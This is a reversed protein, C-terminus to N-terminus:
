PPNIRKFDYRETPISAFFDNAPKFTLRFRPEGEVSRPLDREPRCAGSMDLLNPTTAPARLRKLQAPCKKRSFHELEGM